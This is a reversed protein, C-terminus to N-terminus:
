DPSSRRHAEVFADILRRAITVRDPIVPLADASFWDGEILESPEVRIEGSVTSPPSRSWSRTRSRGPSTRSTAPSTSRSAPRRSSRGTCASRSRRAPSWTGRSWRSGSPSGTTGCSCSGTAGPSPWSSRRPSGRTRWNAAPRASARGSARRRAPRPGACPRLVPPQPGLGGGDPGQGGGAAAARAPRPLARPPRRLEVGGACRGHDGRRPVPRRGGRRRPARGAGRSRACGPRRRRSGGCARRDGQRAPRFWPLPVLSGASRAPSPLRARTSLEDGPCYCSARAEVVARERHVSAASM